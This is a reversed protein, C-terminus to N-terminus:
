LGVILSPDNFLYYLGSVALLSLGVNFLGMVLGGYYAIKLPAELGSRAAYATRANARTATDMGIFSALLSFAAGILFSSAVYPVGNNSSYDFVAYLIIALVISILSITKYKRTLYAKSGSRIAEYLEVMRPTGIEYKNISWALYLAFIIAVIGGIPAIILLPYAM